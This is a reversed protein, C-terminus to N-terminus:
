QNLFNTFSCDISLNPISLNLISEADKNLIVEFNGNDLNGKITFNDQNKNVTIGTQSSLKNISKMITNFASSAIFSDKNITMNLGLYSVKLKDEFFDFKMNALPAPEIIKFTYANDGAKNIDVTTNIEGIKIQATAQFKNSIKINNNNSNQDNNPSCSSLFFINLFLLISLIIIKKQM